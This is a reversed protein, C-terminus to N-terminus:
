RGELIDRARKGADLMLATGAVMSHRVVLDSLTSAYWALADEMASTDPCTECEPCDGPGAGWYLGTWGDPMCDMGGTDSVWCVAGAELDRCRELGPSIEVCQAMASAPLILILLIPFIKRM